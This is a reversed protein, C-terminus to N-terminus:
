AASTKEMEKELYELANGLAICLRLYCDTPNLGMQYSSAIARADLFLDGAWGGCLAAAREAWNQVALALVLGNTGDGEQMVMLQASLDSLEAFISELPDEVLADEMNSEM